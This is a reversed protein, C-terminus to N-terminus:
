TLGDKIKSRIEDEYKEWEVNDYEDKMRNLIWEVANTHDYSGPNNYDPFKDSIEKWYEDELTADYIADGEPSEYIQFDDFTPIRNKM